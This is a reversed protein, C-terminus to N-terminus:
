VLLIFWIQHHSISSVMILSLYCLMLFEVLPLRYCMVHVYHITLRSCRRALQDHPTFVATIVSKQPTFVAMFHSIFAHVGSHYRMHKAHVGGCMCLKHPTFVATCYTFQSAHVGSHMRSKHPTFVATCNIPHDHQTNLM